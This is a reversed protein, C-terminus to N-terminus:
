RCRLNITVPGRALIRRGRCHPCVTRLAAAGGRAVPSVVAAARRAVPAVTRAVVQATQGRPTVRRPAPVLPRALRRV